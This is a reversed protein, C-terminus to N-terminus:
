LKSKIEDPVKTGNKEAELIYEKATAMDKLQYYCLGTLYLIAAHLGQQKNASLEVAKIAYPLAAQPNRANYLTGALSYYSMVYGPDLEVAKKLLEVGESLKNQYGLLPGLTNLALTGNPYISLSRRLFYVASDVQRKQAYILGLQDMPRAYMSDLSIAMRHLQTAKSFDGKQQALLGMVTSAVADESSSGVYKLDSFQKLEKTNQSFSVSSLLTLCIFLLISPKTRM